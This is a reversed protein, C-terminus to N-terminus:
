LLLRQLISALLVLGEVILVLRCDRIMMGDDSLRTGRRVPHCLHRDPLIIVAEDGFTAVILLLVLRLQLSRGASM